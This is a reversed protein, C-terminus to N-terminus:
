SRLFSEAGHLLYTLTYYLPSEYKVDKTLRAISNIHNIIKYVTPSLLSPIWIKRRENISCYENINTYSFVAFKFCNYREGKNFIKM